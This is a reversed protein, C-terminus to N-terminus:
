QNRSRRTSHRGSSPRREGDMQLPQTPAGRRSLDFTPVANVGDARASRELRRDHRARVRRSPRRLRANRGCGGRDRDLAAVRRQGLRERVGPKPVAPRACELLSEAIWAATATSLAIRSDPGLFWLGRVGDGGQGSPRLRPRPDPLSERAYRACNPRQLDAYEILRIPATASGLLNGRQPIGDLLAAPAATGTVAVGPTRGDHHPAPDLQAWYRRARGHRRRRRLRLAAATRDRTPTELSAFAARAAAALRCAASPVAHRPAGAGRFRAHPEPRSAEIEVDREWPPASCAPQCRSRGGDQSRRIAPVTM